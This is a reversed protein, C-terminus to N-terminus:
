RTKTHDMDAILKNYKPIQMWLLTFFLYVFVGFQVELMPEIMMGFLIIITNTLIFINRGKRRLIPICAFYLLFIGVPIGTALATCLFQNHPLIRGLVRISPYKVKYGHEIESTIDGAGVGTLPHDKVISGAIEYSILRPVISYSTNFASTDNTEWVKKEYALDNMQKQVSPLKSLFIGAIIVTTVMGAIILLGRKKRVLNHLIFMGILIYFSVLGSKAAQIHIYLIAIISWLLLLRLHVKSLAYELRYTYLYIVLLLALVIAITFRIYDGELPSPMHRGTRFEMAGTLIFFFGYAMGAFLCTLLSTIIIKLFGAKKVPLDLMAFPLFIFPLKIQITTFWNAKEESWLGSLFYASFFIISAIAFRSQKFQQWTIKIKQPHLANLFFLIMGVSLLARAFIFGAIMLVCCTCSIVEQNKVSWYTNIHAKNISM